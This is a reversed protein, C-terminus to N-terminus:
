YRNDSCELKDNHASVSVCVCVCVFLYRSLKLSTLEISMRELVGPLGQTNRKGVIEFKNAIIIKGLDIILANTSTSSQPVIIVPAKLRINLSIRTAKQTLETAASVASDRAAASAEAM